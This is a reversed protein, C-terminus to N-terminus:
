RNKVSKRKYDEDFLLDGLSAQSARPVAVRGSKVFQLICDQAVFENYLNVVTDTQGTMEVVTYNANVQETLWRFTLSVPEAEITTGDNLTLSVGNLARKENITGANFTKFIDKIQLM